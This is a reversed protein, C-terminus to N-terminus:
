VVTIDISNQPSLATPNTLSEWVFVTATYSGTEDPTWSQSVNAGGFGALSSAAWSLHVTVGDMNQIQLLYAYDQSRSQASALDAAINVQQGVSVSDVASGLADVVGLNSVAVRELPPVISGITTTGTIRLSREGDPPPLTEDDYAATVIDGESVQLRNGKSHLTDFLVEGEFVGNNPDTETLAIKIGGRYTDSFVVTSISDPSDPHLNRDPDVVRLTGATEERYSSELWTVEAVSWRILGSQVLDREDEDYTYTVSFGDENEVCLQDDQICSIETGSGPDYSYGGLDITGQFIGTNAGTEPIRVDRLEGGQSNANILIDEVVLDDINADPAIVTVTM